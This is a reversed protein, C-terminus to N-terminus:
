LSANIINYISQDIGEDKVSNMIQESVRKKTTPDPAFGRVSPDFVPEGLEPVIYIYSKYASISSIFPQTLLGLVKKDINNDNDKSTDIYLASKDNNPGFVCTLFGTGGVGAIGCPIYEGYSYQLEGKQSQIDLALVDRERQVLLKDKNYIVDAVDNIKFLEKQKEGSIDYVTLVPGSIICLYKQGCLRARTYGGKFTFSKTKGDEYIQFVTKGKNVVTEDSNTARKQGSSANDNGRSYSYIAVLGNGKASLEFPQLTNDQPQTIQIKEPNRGLDQYYNIEELDTDYLVFGNRYALIKYSKTPDSNEINTGRPVTPSVLKHDASVEYIIPLSPYGSDASLGNVLLIVRDKIQLIGGISAAATSELLPQATTPTSADAPLHVKLSAASESECDYSMLLDQAYFMCSGPNNGVFSRSKEPALSAEVHTTSLFSGTNATSYHSSYNQSIFIEYDGKSVIKKVNSSNSNIKTEAGTQRNILTFSFSGTQAGKAEINIIAHSYIWYIVLLSTLIFIFVIAVPRINRSLKKLEIILDQM